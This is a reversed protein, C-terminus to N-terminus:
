LHPTHWALTYRKSTQPHLPVLHQLTRALTLSPEQTTTEQNPTEHTPTTAANLFPGTTQISEVTDRLKQALAQPFGESVFVLNGSRAVLIDGEATTYIQEDDPDNPDNTQRPSLSIYRRPLEATYLELFSRASDANKWRSLYFFALSGPTLKEAATSARRQAAYYLGGNWNPTLAASMERGGFLETLIRTDLEGIAGIDYPAYTPDLLPHIDPLLLIPPPTHALYVAPHLIESSTTPPHALVGSFAAEKGKKLLVAQEFALGENYPFLLSQQLLLPARALVPSSSSGSSNAASLDDLHDTFAPLDAVTKGSSRLSFDLFAVMAQGEAVATRATDQEDLQIHRIDDPANRSIDSLPVDGWKQLDVRQDQLAHTLEHALVPKQEEPSIWSLLNVTKTKNDYFGAIQETLLSLLFPRLQFDRDLLGMKKLVLESREMRRASEDESFKKQLIQNVEDRSILRRKVTHQIPLGTDASVFHLIEDVSRLLDKAQDKTLTTDKQPTPLPKTPPRTQIQALLTLTTALLAPALTRPM